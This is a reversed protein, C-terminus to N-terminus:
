TLLTQHWLNQCRARLQTLSVFAPCSMTLWRAQVLRQEGGQSGIRNDPAADCRRSGERGGERRPM